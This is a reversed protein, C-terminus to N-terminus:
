LSERQWLVAGDQEAVTSAFIGVMRGKSGFTLEHFCTSDRREGAEIIQLFVRDKGLYNKDIYGHVNGRIRNEGIYEQEGVSSEEKIKEVTGHVVHGERWIMAVYSLVMDQYPQYSTNETRMEFYWRGVVDPLPCLKEKMLFFVLALILGGVVTSIVGIALPDLTYVHM